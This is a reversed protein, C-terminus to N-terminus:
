AYGGVVPGTTTDAIPFSRPSSSGFKGVLDSWKDGILTVFPGEVSRIAGDLDLTYFVVAERSLLRWSRRRYKQESPKHM